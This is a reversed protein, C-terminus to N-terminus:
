TNTCTVKSWPAVAELPGPDERQRPNVTVSLCVVSPLVGRSSHNLGVCLGRGSLVCYECRVFMLGGGASNSGVIGALSRGCVWEKSRATVPIPM